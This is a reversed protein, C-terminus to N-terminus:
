NEDTGRKLPATGALEVTIPRSKGLVKGNVRGVLVLHNSASTARVKVEALRQGPGVQVPEIWLGAIQRAAGLTVPARDDDFREVIVKISGQNGSVSVREPVNITLKPSDAVTAFLGATQAYGTTKSKWPVPLPM